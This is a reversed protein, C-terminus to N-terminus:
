KIPIGLDERQQGDMFSDIEEWTAGDEKAQVGDKFGLNYARQVRTGLGTFTARDWGLGYGRLFAKYYIDHIMESVNKAEEEAIEHVIRDEIM